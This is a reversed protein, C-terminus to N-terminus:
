GIVDIVNADDAVRGQPYLLLRGGVIAEKRKTKTNTFVIPSAYTYRTYLCPLYPIANPLDPNKIIHAETNMKMEVAWIEDPDDPTGTVVEFTASRPTQLLINVNDKGTKKNTPSYMFM